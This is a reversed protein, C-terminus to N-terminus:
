FLVSGNGIVSGANERQLPDIMGIVLYHFLFTEYNLLYESACNVIHGGGGTM